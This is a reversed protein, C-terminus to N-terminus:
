ISCSRSPSWKGEMKERGELETGVLRVYIFWPPRPRTSVHRSCVPAHDDLLSRLTTNYCHLLMNLDNPPDQYLQSNRIDEKLKTIDISKLKRYEAHKIRLPPKAVSLKCIVAAHDSFYREPLAEGDVIDDAQRTIILDLTHGHIHTPLKVHQVLGMSNLLDKLRITDADSPFDVHVNFDGCILLLEDCLVLSELYVSFEHFFVSTTVPHDASYTPRYVIVVRLRVSGFVVLWESMEFSSREASFVKNVDLGVRHLLATGGGRRDARPCHYLKSYGPLTLESLIASDLDHLWSECITFLEARLDCVLDM